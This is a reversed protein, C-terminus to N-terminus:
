HAFCVKSRISTPTMVFVFNDAAEIGACIKQWWDEAYEIDEWDVWAEHGRKELADFLQRVFAKDDRSYSIFVETMFDELSIVGGHKIRLFIGPTLM